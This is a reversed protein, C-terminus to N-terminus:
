FAFVLLFYDFNYFGILLIPHFSIFNDLSYFHCQLHLYILDNVFNVLFLGSSIIVLGRPQLMFVKTNWLM